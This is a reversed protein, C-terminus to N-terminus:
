CGFLEERSGYLTVAHCDLMDRLTFRERAEFEFITTPSVDVGSPRNTVVFLGMYSAGYDFYQLQTSTIANRIGVCEVVAWDDRRVGFLWPGPAPAATHMYYHYKLFTNTLRTSVGRYVRNAL